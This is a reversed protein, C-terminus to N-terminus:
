DQLATDAKLKAVAGGVREYEDAMRGITDAMEKAAPIHTRTYLDSLGAQLDKLHTVSVDGKEVEAAMGAFATQLKVVDSDVQGAAQLQAVLDALDVNAESIFKRIGATEGSVAAEVAGKLDSQDQLRKQEDNYAKLAPLADGWKQAVKDILEAHEKLVKDSEEGSSLLSSFYQIAAGGLGIIAFTALSVPNLMQTFAGGLARIAAVGGGAQELAQTLQSGQQAAIRFPSQGTLLGQAIDNLQFTLNTVAAKTQGISVTATKASREFSKAVNNNAANFSGDINKAAREAAKAIAAAQKETKAQSLEISVLLRALDEQTSPM